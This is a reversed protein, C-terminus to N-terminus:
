QTNNCPVLRLRHLSRHTYCMRSILFQHIIKILSPLRLLCSTLPTSQYVINFHIKVSYPTPIVPNSQRPVLYVTVSFKVNYEGHM